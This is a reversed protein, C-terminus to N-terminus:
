KKKVLLSLIYLDWRIRGFYMDSFSLKLGNQRCLAINKGELHLHKKRQAIQLFPFM